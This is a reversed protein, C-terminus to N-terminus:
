YCTQLLFAPLCYQLSSHKIFPYERMRQSVSTNEKIREGFNAFNHLRQMFKEIMM